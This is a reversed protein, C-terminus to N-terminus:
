WRGWWWPWRWLHQFSDSTSSRWPLLPPRPRCQQAPTPSPRQQQGGSAPTLEELLLDNHVNHFSPFPRVQKLYTKVHDYKKNLGRLVQLVLTRDEVHKGLDYLDDAMCKMRRCYDDVSLNGQLFLWFQAGLHLAHTERNSLFQEELAVWFQQATRDHDHDRAHTTEQLDVTIIGLLWSLVVNDMRRWHPDAVTPADFSVHDDLAYRQLTLLVLDRWRPYQTSTVGLVVPV